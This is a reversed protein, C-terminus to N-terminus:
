KSKVKIDKGNPRVWINLDNEFMDETRRWPLYVKRKETTITGWIDKLEITIIYKTGKCDFSIFENTKEYKILRKAGLNFIGEIFIPIGIFVFPIIIFIAIIIGILKLITFILYDIETPNM